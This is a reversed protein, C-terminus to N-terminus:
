KVIQPASIQLTATLQGPSGRENQVAIQELSLYPAQKALEDYFGLLAALSARRVTVKVTHYAFQPTRRTQPPDISPRFGAASALTNVAAVLRTADYTRAPDLNGAAAAAAAEIQAQRGLWVAQTDAADGAARWERWAAGTRGFADSLWVAALGLLFVTILWQERRNRTLFFHKLKM